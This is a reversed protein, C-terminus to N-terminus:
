ESPQVNQQIQRKCKMRPAYKYCIVVFALLIITGSISFSSILSYHYEVPTTENKSDLDARVEMLSRSIAHLEDPNKIIKRLKCQEMHKLQTVNITRVLDPVTLNHMPLYSLYTESKYNRSTDITFETTSITCKEKSIILGSDQILTNQTPYQDCSIVLQIPTPTIYIWTGPQNLEILITQNLNIFRLNCNSPQKVLKTFIQVECPGKPLAKFVPHYLKCLYDSNLLKCKKLEQNNIHVYDLNTEDITVLTDTIDLYAYLSENVKTPVPYVKNVKYQKANLLPVEIITTISHSTSYAALNIVEYLSHTNEITLPLPFNLGKPLDPLAANLYKIILNPPLVTPNLIGKRIDQTYDLINKADEALDKIISEFIITQEDLAFQLKENNTETELLQRLANTANLLTRENYNINGISENYLEINRNVVQMQKLLSTRLSSGERELIAIQRNITQRDNEDMTGFLVKGLHGIGDILGRRTRPATGIIQRVYELNVSIQQLEKRSINYFQNCFKNLRPNAIDSCQKMTDTLATQIKAIRISLPTVDIHIVLKWTSRYIHLNGLEEFYIGPHDTFRQINVAEDPPIGHTIRITLFAVRCLPIRAM